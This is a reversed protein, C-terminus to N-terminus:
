RKLDDIFNNVADKKEPRHKEVYYMPLMKGDEDFWAEKKESYQINKRELIWASIWYADSKMVDYDQGFVHSQPIIDLNGDFSVAKFAKDSIRELSKLRVSYCKIKSMICLDGGILVSSSVKDM